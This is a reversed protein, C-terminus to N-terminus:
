LAWEEDRVPALLNSRVAVRQDRGSPTAVMLVVEDNVDFAGLLDAADIHVVHITRTFTQTALNDRRPGNLSRAM